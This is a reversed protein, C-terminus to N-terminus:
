ENAERRRDRERRIPSLWPGQRRRHRLDTAYGELDAISAFFRYRGVRDVRRRYCQACVVKRGHDVFWGEGPRVHPCAPERRVPGTQNVSAAPTGPRSDVALRSIVQFALAKPDTM